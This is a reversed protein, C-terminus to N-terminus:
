VELCVFHLLKFSFKLKLFGFSSVVYLQSPRQARSAPRKYDQPKYCWHKRLAVRLFMFARHFSKEQHVQLCRMLVMKSGIRRFLWVAEGLKDSSHRQMDDAHEGEDEEEEGVSAAKVTPTHLPADSCTANLTPAETDSHKLKFKTIKTNLTSVTLRDSASESM